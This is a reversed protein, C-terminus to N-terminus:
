SCAHPATSPCARPKPSLEETMLGMRTLPRRQPAIKAAVDSSFGMGASASDFIASNVSSTAIAIEWRSARASSSRSVSSCAASRRTAISTAVSPDSASTKVAIASSIPRTSPM